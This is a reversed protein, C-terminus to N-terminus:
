IQIDGTDVLAMMNQSFSLWDGINFGDELVDNATASDSDKPLVNFGEDGEQLSPIPPPQFGLVSLQADLEMRLEMQAPNLSATRAKLECYRVAVNGFVEFLRHHKAIAPSHACASQISTVFAQMSNLDEM